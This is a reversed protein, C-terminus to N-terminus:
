QIVELAALLGERVSSPTAPAGQVDGFFFDLYAKIRDLFAHLDATTRVYPTHGTELSPSHFSFTFTRVGRRLLVRTLRIMEACTSTEPSLNIRNLIRLRSLVGHARMSQLMSTSASQHLWDGWRWAVGDFGTTCPLEVLWSQLLSPAEPFCTFDPGGQDSFDMHPNISTDIQFGLQRLIPFTNMGIGYRGAKYVLPACGFAKVVEAHLLSLKASELSMDLNSAFSNRPTLPEDYPPNVWPHLHAGVTCRGDALLERIPEVGDRQSAVPFDVVYCPELAYKDCLSQFVPLSRIATVSRASRSFPASWDFEEETDVVVVLRPIASPPDKPTVITLQPDRPRLPVAGCFVRFRSWRALYRASAAM